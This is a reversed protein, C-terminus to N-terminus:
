KEKGTCARRLLPAARRLRGSPRSVLIHRTFFLLWFFRKVAASHSILCVRRRARLQAAPERLWRSKEVRSSRQAALGPANAARRIGARRPSATSRRKGALGTAAFFSTCGHVDGKPNKGGDGGSRLPGRRLPMQPGYHNARRRALLHQGIWLLIVLLLLLLLLLLLM